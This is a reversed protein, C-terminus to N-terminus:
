PGAVAEVKLWIGSQPTLFMKKVNFELPMAATRDCTSFSFHKLLHALAIKAEMLGFRLGICNRPGDGFPLFCTQPRREVEGASFREPRFEEPDEYYEPDHHIGYVPILVMTSKPLKFSLDKYQYDQCAFRVLSSVPPYKRLSENIVQDLYYMESLCEYSLKGDHRRLVNLIEQRAKEQISRNKPQALEFLAYTLTMSTTEFGANFFVFAQAAIEMLTLKGENRKKGGESSDADKLQLLLDMFDNRRVDNTARYDATNRVVNYFFDTVDEHHGRIRFFHAWRHCLKIIVRNTSTLKPEDFLKKGMLRFPTNPDKLSDCEIGFASNGIVDTSYRAMVDRIEIESNVKILESVCKVLQETVSVIAPFMLKMKGSSFTPSLKSRLPRWKDVDVNFLHASMPDDRENYYVGRNPFTNFDKILVTRAFDLDTVVIVPRLLFYLGYFPADSHKGKKYLEAIQLDIHLEPSGLQLNGLLFRPREYPVGNEEWFNFRKRVYVYSVFVLGILFLLVNWIM